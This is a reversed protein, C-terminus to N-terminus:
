AFTAAQRIPNWPGALTRDGIRNAQQGLDKSGALQWNTKGTGRSAPVLLLFPGHSSDGYAWVAVIWSEM